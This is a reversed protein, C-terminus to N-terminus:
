FGVLKFVLGLGIMLSIFISSFLLSNGLVSLYQRKTFNKEFSENLKYPKRLSM